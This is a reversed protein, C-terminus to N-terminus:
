SIANGYEDVYGRKVAVDYCRRCRRSDGLSINMWRIRAGCLAHNTGPRAVHQASVKDVHYDPVDRKWALVQAVQTTDSQRPSPV